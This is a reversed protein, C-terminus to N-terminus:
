QTKEEVPWAARAQSEPKLKKLPGLWPDVQPPEKQDVSVRITKTVRESFIAM